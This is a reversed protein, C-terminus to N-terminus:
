HHLTAKRVAAYDAASEAVSEGSSTFWCETFTMAAAPAQARHQGTEGQRQLINLLGPKTKTAHKASNTTAPACAWAWVSIGLKGSPQGYM